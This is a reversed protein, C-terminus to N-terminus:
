SRSTDFSQRSLFCPLSSPRSRHLDDTQERSLASPNLAQPMPIVRERGVEEEGRSLSSRGLDARLKSLIHLLQSARECILSTNPRPPKERSLSLDHLYTM